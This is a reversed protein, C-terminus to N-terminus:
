RRRRPPVPLHPRHRPHLLPPLLHLIITSGKGIKRPAYNKSVKHNCAGIVLIHGRGAERNPARQTEMRNTSAM